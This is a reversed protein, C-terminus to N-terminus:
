GGVRMNATAWCLANLLLSVSCALIVGLALNKHGARRLLLIVPIQWALQVVGTVMLGQLRTEASTSGHVIFLALFLGAAMM